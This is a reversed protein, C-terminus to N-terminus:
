RLVQRGSLLRGWDDQRHEALFRGLPGPAVLYLHGGSHLVVKLRDLQCVDDSAPETWAIARLSGPLSRIETPPALGLSAAARRLGRPLPALFPLHPLRRLLEAGHFTRPALAAVPGDTAQLQMALWDFAQCYALGPRATPDFRINRM